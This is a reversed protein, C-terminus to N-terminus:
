FKVKIAVNTKEGSPNVFLELRCILPTKCVRRLCLLSKSSDYYQRMAKVQM